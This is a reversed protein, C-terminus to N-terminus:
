ILTSVRSGNSMGALINQVYIYSNIKNQQTNSKLQNIYDQETETASSKQTKTVVKSKDLQASLIDIKSNLTDISLRKDSKQGSLFRSEDLMIERNLVRARNEMRTKASSIIREFNKNQLDKFPNEQNETLFPLSENLKSQNLKMSIKLLNAKDESNKVSSIQKDLNAIQKDFNKLQKEISSVEKGDKITRNILDNKSEEVLKKQQELSESLTPVKYNKTTVKESLSNVQKTAKTNETINEVNPTKTVPTVYSTTMSRYPSVASYISM